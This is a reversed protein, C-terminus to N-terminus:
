IQIDLAEINSISGNCLANNRTDGPLVLVSRQRKNGSQRSSTSSNGGAGTGPDTAHYNVFSKSTFRAFTDRLM